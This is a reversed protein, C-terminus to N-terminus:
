KTRLFHHAAYLSPNCLLMEWVRSTYLKTPVNNAELGIRWWDIRLTWLNPKMRDRIKELYMDIRSCIKKQYM